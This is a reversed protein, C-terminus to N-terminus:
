HLKRIGKSTVIFVRNFGLRNAENLLQTDTFSGQSKECLDNSHFRPSCLYSYSEKSPWAYLAPRESIAAIFYPLNRVYMSAWFGSESRPIYVAGNLSGPDDRIVRLKRVYDGIIASPLPAGMAQMFIRGGKLIAKSGNHYIGFTFVVVLASFLVIVAKRPISWIREPDSLLQLVIQPVCILVPLAMFMSINSFYYGAGGEMYFILVVVIGVALSIITGLAWWRPFAALSNGNILMIFYLLLALIPFIFHILIFLILKLWFPGSFKVYHVFQFLEIRADSMSPNIFSFFILFIVTCVLFVGWRKYHITLYWKETSLLAWSGVLGLALFGTSIKSITILALVACVVIPGLWKSLSFVRAHLVSLLSILLILSVVYSESEFFSPWLAFRWLLSGKVLVATGLMVFSYTFLKWVFNLDTASPLFEEAVSLALVGLLTPCLFVFFYNYSEFASFGVLNGGATMLMHSGFHYDLQGLGHLGHSVVHHTKLMAAIAVHYMTDFHVNTTELRVENFPQSYEFSFYPFLIAILTFTTGGFIFIDRWSLGKGKSVSILESTAFAAVFFWYIYSMLSPMFGFVLISSLGAFVAVGIVPIRRYVFGAISAFGVCIGVTRLMQTVHAPWGISILLFFLAVAPLSWILVFIYKNVRGV